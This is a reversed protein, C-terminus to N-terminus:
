STRSRRIASSLDRTPNSEIRRWTGGMMRLSGPFHAILVPQNVCGALVDLLGIAAKPGCNGAKKLREVALQVHPIVTEVDAFVSREM